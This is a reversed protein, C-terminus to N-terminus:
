TQLLTTRLVYQYLPIYAFTDNVCRQVHCVPEHLWDVELLFTFLPTMERRRRPEIADCLEKFTKRTMWFNEIWLQDTHEETVMREWFDRIWTREACLFKAKSSDSEAQIIIAAVAASVLSIAAGLHLYNIPCSKNLFMAKTSWPM